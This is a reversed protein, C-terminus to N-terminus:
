LLKLRPLRITLCRPLRRTLRKMPAQPVSMDVIGAMSVGAGVCILKREKYPERGVKNKFNPM